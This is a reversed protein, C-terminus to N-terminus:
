NIGGAGCREGKTVMLKNESDTETKYILKNTDNKKAKMYLHYWIINTKSKIWKTHYGRLGDINDCIVNNWKKIASYYEMTYMYWM